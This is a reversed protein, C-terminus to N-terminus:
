NASVLFPLYHLQQAGPYVARVYLLVFGMANYATPTVTVNAIDGNVGSTRDLTATATGNYVPNGQQDRLIREGTGGQVEISFPAGLARDSYLGIPFSVSQGQAVKFGRTQVIGERRNGLPSLDVTLMDLKTAPLFTAGYMFGDASPLCWDRGASASANSWQRQVVYPPLDTTDAATQTNECADGLEDRFEDYIDMALHDRDFGLYAPHKSPHPDTAAENLEHSATYEMDQAQFGPCHPMVAYVVGAQTETHYGGVSSQCADQGGADLPGGFALTTGPPMYIAYITNDTDAPWSSGVNQIVMADLDLDALSSPPPTTVHVHNPAGSTAPGVGYESNIAHWYPSSGLADDFAEYTAGDPDSSWTVTVIVPAALTPGGNSVVQPVDVTWAPYVADPGGTDAGADHGGDAAIGSDRPGSDQDTGGGSSSSAGGDSAGQNTAPGGCAILVLALGAAGALFTRLAAGRVHFWPAIM